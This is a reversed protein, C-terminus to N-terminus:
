KKCRANQGERRCKGDAFSDAKLRADRLCESFGRYKVDLDSSLLSALLSFNAATPKTAAKVGSFLGAHIALIGRLGSGM